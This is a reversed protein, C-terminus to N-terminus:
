VGGGIAKRLQWAALLGLFPVGDKRDADVLYYLAEFIVKQKGDALAVPLRVDVSESDWLGAAEIRETGKPGAVTAGGADHDVTFHASDPNTRETHIPHRDAGAPHTVTWRPSRGASQLGAASPSVKWSLSGNPGSLESSPPAAHVLHAALLLSIM